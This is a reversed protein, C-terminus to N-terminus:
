IYNSRHTVLQEIKESLESYGEEDCYYQLLKFAEDTDDFKMLEECSDILSNLMAEAGVDFAKSLDQGTFDSM